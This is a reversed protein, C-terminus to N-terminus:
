PHDGYIGERTMADDSLSRHEPSATAAFDEALRDALREYDLAARTGVTRNLLKEVTADIAKLLVQRVAEADHRATGEWLRREQEATLTLTITM